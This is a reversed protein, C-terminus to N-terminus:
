YAEPVRTRSLVEGTAYNLVLEPAALHPETDDYLDDVSLLGSEPNFSVNKLREAQRIIESRWYDRHRMWKPFHVNQGYVTLYTTGVRNTVVLLNSEDYASEFENHSMVPLQIFKGDVTSLELSPLSLPEGGIVFTQRDFIDFKTERLVHLTPRKDTLYFPNFTTMTGWHDEFVFATHNGTGYFAHVKYM